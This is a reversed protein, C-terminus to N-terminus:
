FERRFNVQRDVTERGYIRAEGQSQPVNVGLPLPPADITIDSPTEQFEADRGEAPLADQAGDITEETFDLARDRMELGFARGRRGMDIGFARADAPGAQGHAYRLGFSIGREAMDLGFSIGRDGNRHLFRRGEPGFQERLQGIDLDRGLQLRGDRQGDPAPLTEPQPAPPTINVDAPPAIDSEEPQTQEQAMSITATLLIALTFTLCRM